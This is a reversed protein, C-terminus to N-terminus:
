VTFQSSRLAFRVQDLMVAISSEESCLYCIPSTVVLSESRVDSPPQLSALIPLKARTLCSAIVCSQNFDVRSDSLVVVVRERDDDKRWKGAITRVFGRVMTILSPTSGWGKRTPERSITYQGDREERRMGAM